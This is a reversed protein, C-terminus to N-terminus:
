EAGRLPPEQLRGQLPGDIGYEAPGPIPDVPGHRPVITRRDSGILPRPPRLRRFPRGWPSEASCSGQRQRSPTSIMAGDRHSRGLSEGGPSRGAAEDRAPQFGHHLPRTTTPWEPVTADKPIRASSQVTPRFGGPLGGEGRAAPVTPLRFPRRGRPRT